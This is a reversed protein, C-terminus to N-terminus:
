NDINYEQHLFTNVREDKCSNFVNEPTDNALLYGHEMFILKNAVAKAFQMEHTVVVMTMGSKVLTKIVELVSSTMEPDLASTPEDFLLVEPNMCLARAIAVRQKEGGSINNTRFHMRKGMGVLNLNEIAIKEAEKKSRKLVTRQPLVCNGLVSRNNFLNFSQFVMGVHSRYTNINLTDINEGHFEITGKSPIELQNICRLMTSKGAGSPGIVSIVDGKNIDFSINKLVHTQDDYSKALNKISIIPNSKKM